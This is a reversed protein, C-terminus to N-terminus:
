PKNCWYETYSVLSIAWHNLINAATVSSRLKIKLLWMPHSMTVQLELKRFAWMKKQSGYAGVLPTYTCVCVYVFIFTINLRKFLAPVGYIMVIVLWPYNKWLKGRREACVATGQKTEVKMPSMVQLIV